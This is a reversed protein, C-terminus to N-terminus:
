AAYEKAAAEMCERLAHLTRHRLVRANAESINLFAAVEAHGKHEAYSLRIADRARQSLQTLCAELRLVDVTAHGPASAVFPSVDASYMEWLEERRERRRARERAVNKCIGLVFGGVRPPDEVGGRRLAEVFLVLVDQEFDRVADAGVLRRRAFARIAPALRRCLTSEASRDGRQARAVLDSAPEASGDPMSMASFGILEPARLLSSFFLLDGHLPM